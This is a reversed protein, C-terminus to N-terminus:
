FSLNVLIIIKKDKGSNMFVNIKNESVPGSLYELFLSLKDTGGAVKGARNNPLYVM